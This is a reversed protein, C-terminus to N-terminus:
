PLWKSVPFYKQKATKVTTTIIQFVETPTINDMNEKVPSAGILLKQSYFPHNPNGSSKVSSDESTEPFDAYVVSRIWDVYDTLKTYLAFRHVDCQGTTTFASASVM